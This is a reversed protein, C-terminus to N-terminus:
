ELSTYCNHMNQFIFYFYITYGKKQNDHPTESKKEICEDQEHTRFM